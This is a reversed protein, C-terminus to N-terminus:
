NDTDPFSLFAQEPDLQGQSWDWFENWNILGEPDLHTYRLIPRFNLKAFESGLPRPANPKHRHFDKVLDPTNEFMSAPHWELIPYGIFKAKYYPVSKTKGSRGKGKWSKDLEEVLKSDMIAEVEWEPEGDVIM